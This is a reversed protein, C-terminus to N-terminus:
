VKLLLGMAQILRAADQRKLQEMDESQDYRQMWKRRIESTKPDCLFWRSSRKSIVFVAEHEPFPKVLVEEEVIVNKHKLLVREEKSFKSVPWPADLMDDSPLSEESCLRLSFNRRAVDM